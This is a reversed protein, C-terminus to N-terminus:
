HNFETTTLGATELIESDGFAYQEVPDLNDGEFIDLIATLVTGKTKSTFNKYFNLLSAFVKAHFNQM